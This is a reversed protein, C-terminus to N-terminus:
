VPFPGQGLTAERFRSGEPRLHGWVPGPTSAASEEMFLGLDPLIRWPDWVRFPRGVGQLNGSGAPDGLRM